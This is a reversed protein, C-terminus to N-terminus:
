NAALLTFDIKLGQNYDPDIWIKGSHSEVIKKCIALGLGTGAYKDKNHLRQFLQFVKEKYQRDIGIGNDIVSFQFFNSQKASNVNIRVRPIAKNRFKLSNDILNQFLQTMQSKKALVEPLTNYVINAQNAQIKGSLNLCVNQLIENLNQKELFVDRQASLLSYKMLDDLMEKMNRTGKIAFKIFEKCQDSLNDEQREILQIFGSISRLPEKLDHASIYAFRKLEENSDELEQKQKNLLKNADSLEQSSMDMTREILQRDQEFHTYSNEVSKLFNKFDDSLDDYEISNRRLQRLLLKSKPKM